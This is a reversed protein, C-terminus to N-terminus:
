WPLYPEKFWGSARKAKSNHEPCFDRNTKAQALLNKFDTYLMYGKYEEPKFIAFYKQLQKLCVPCSHTGHEAAFYDADFELAQAYSIKQDDLMKQIEPLFRISEPALNQLHHRLEHYLLHRQYIIPQNYFVSSIITVTKCQFDYFAATNLGLKQPINNGIFLSVKPYIGLENQIDNFLKLLKEDKCPVAHYSDLMQGNELFHPTCAQFAIDLFSRFKLQSLLLANKIINQQTSKQKFAITLEKPAPVISGLLIISLLGIVIKKTSM